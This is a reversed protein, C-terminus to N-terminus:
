VHHALTQGSGDLARCRSLSREMRAWFAETRTLADFGDIAPPPDQFSPGYSLVFPISQGAKSRSSASRESIRAMCGSGPTRLVVREPGAIANISGDDLRNVWPVAPGRLQLAGSAGDSFGSAGISRGRDACSARRRGAAMFDVVAASGPRPKSNPKELVLTGPRYRRHV